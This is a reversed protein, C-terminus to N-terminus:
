SESLKWRRARVGPASWSSARCIAITRDASPNPTMKRMGAAVAVLDRAAVHHENLGGTTLPAPFGAFASYNMTIYKSTQAVQPIDILV